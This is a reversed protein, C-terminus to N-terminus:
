YNWKNFNGPCVNIHIILRNKNTLNNSDFFECINIRQCHTDTILQGHCRCQNDVYLGGLNDQIIISRKFDVSKKKDIQCVSALYISM